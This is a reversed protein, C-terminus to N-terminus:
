FFHYNLFIHLRKKNDIKKCCLNQYEDKTAGAVCLDTEGKEGTREKKLEM